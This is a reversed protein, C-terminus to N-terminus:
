AAWAEDLQEPGGGHTMHRRAADFNTSTKMVPNSALARNLLVSRNAVVTEPAWVEKEWIERKKRCHLGSGCKTEVTYDRQRVRVKKSNM